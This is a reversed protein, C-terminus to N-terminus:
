DDITQEFVKANESGRKKKKEAMQESYVTTKISNLANNSITILNFGLDTRPELNICTYFVYLLYMIM